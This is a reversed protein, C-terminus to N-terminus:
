FLGFFRAKKVKFAAIERSDFHYNALRIHGSGDGKWVDEKLSGFVDDLNDPTDKVKVEVAAGSKLIVAIKWWRKKM